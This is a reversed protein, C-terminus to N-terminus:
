ISYTITSGTEVTSRKGLVAYPGVLSGRELLSAEGVVVPPVLIADHDISVHEGVWIGKSREQLHIPINVRREIIDWHALLYRRPTGIDIWYGSTLSGFLPDDRKLLNPYTEETIGCFVGPPIERFIEPEMFYVGTFMMKTLTEQQDVHPEGRLQRIRGEQDIMVEGFREGEPYPRLLLTALAGKERHDKLARDIEFDILIDGNVVLFTGDNLFREAKKIGGGTGLIESEYSYHIQMGFGSGDGLAKMIQDPYHHLNIVVESIGWRKLLDLTYALLPRGVVPALPKPLLDTLPALRKGYGAALIMAKM